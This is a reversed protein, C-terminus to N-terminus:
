LSARRSRAAAAMPSGIIRMMAASGAIDLASRYAPLLVCSRAFSPTRYAAAVSTDRPGCARSHTRVRGESEFHWLHIEESRSRAPSATGTLGQTTLRGPAARSLYGDSAMTAQNRTHASTSSIAPTRKNLTRLTTPQDACIQGAHVRTGVTNPCGVGAVTELIIRLTSQRNAM